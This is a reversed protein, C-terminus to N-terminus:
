WTPVRGQGGPLASSACLSAFAAARASASCAFAVGARSSTPLRNWRRWCAISVAAGWGRGRRAAARGQSLAVM